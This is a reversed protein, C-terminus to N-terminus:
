FVIVVMCPDSKIYIKKSFFFDFFISYLCVFSFFMVKGVIRFFRGSVYKKSQSLAETGYKHELLLVYPVFLFWFICIIGPIFILLFGIFTVVMSYSGKEVNELKFTGDPETASATAVEGSPYQLVVNAGPLSGNQTDVVKGIISFNQASACIAVAM